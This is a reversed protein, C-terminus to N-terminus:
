ITGLFKQHHHHVHDINSDDRERESSRFTERERQDDRMELTEDRIEHIMSQERQSKGSIGSDLNTEIECIMMEITIRENTRIQYINIAHRQKDSHRM